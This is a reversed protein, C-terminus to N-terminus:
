EPPARASLYALRPLIGNRRHPALSSKRPVTHSRDLLCFHWGVGGPRASPLQTQSHSSWGAWLGALAVQGCAVVVRRSCQGQAEFCRLSACRFAAFLAWWWFLCFCIHIMYTYVLTFDLLNFIFYNFYFNFAGIDCFFKNPLIVRRFVMSCGPFKRKHFLTPM